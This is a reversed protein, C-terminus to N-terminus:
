NKVIKDFFKFFQDKLVQELKMENIKTKILDIKDHYYYCFYNINLAKFFLDIIDKISDRLRILHLDNKIVILECNIRNIEQMRNNLANEHEDKLCEVMEKQGQLEKSLSEIKLNQINVIEMLINFKEESSLEKGLPFIVNKDAKKTENLLQDKKYDKSIKLSTIKIEKFKSSKNKEENSNEDKFLACNKNEEKNNENIENIENKDETESNEIVKDIKNNNKKKRRNRKRSKKNYEEDQIKRLELHNNSIYLSSSNEPEGFKEYIKILDDVLTEKNIKDIEEDQYEKILPLEKKFYFLKNKMYTIFSDILISNCKMYKFILYFCGKYYGKCAENIVSFCNFITLLNNIKYNKAEDVLDLFKKKSTSDMEEDDLAKIILALYAENEEFDEVNLDKEDIFFAKFVNIAFIENSSDKKENATLELTRLRSKLLEFILSMQRERIMLKQHSDPFTYVLLENFLFMVKLKRKNLLYNEKAKENTTDNIQSTKM